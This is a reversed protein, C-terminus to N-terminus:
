RTLKTKAPFAHQFGSEYTIFNVMIIVSVRTFSTYTVKLILKAKEHYSKKKPHGRSAPQPHGICRIRHNLMYYTRNNQSNLLIKGFGASQKGRSRRPFCQSERSVFNM